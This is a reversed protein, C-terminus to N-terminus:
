LQMGFHLKGYGQKAERRRPDSTRYQCAALALIGLLNGEVLWVILMIPKRNSIDTQKCNEWLCNEYM